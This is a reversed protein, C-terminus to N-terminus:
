NQNIKIIHGVKIDKAYIKQLSDTNNKSKKTPKSIVEYETFNLEKDRISRKCDDYAEKIMTLFLVFALPATYTILLGVKLFPIFQSLAIALLFMNFFFKFENYLVKPVFTIFNYKTNKMENTYPFYRPETHGDFFIKRDEKSITLGM